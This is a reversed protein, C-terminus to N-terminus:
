HSNCSWCRMLIPCFVPRQSTAEDARKMYQYDQFQRDCSEVMLWKHELERNEVLM